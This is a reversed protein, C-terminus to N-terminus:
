FFRVVVKEELRSKVVTTILAYVSLALVLLKEIVAM